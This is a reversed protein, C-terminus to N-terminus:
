KEKIEKSDKNEKVRKVMSNFEDSLEMFFDNKRFNIDSLDEFSSFSKMKEKFKYLPGCIRHSYLLGIIFITSSLILFTIIVVGNMLSQQESIFQFFPNDAPIGISEGMLRLKWFFYLCACYMCGGSFLAILMMFCIFKIQFKPNILFIKRRNFITISM